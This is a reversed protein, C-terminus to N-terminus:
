SMATQSTRSRRLVKAMGGIEFLFRGDVLFDGQAPYSVEHRASVQNLFFTERETGVNAASHLTRMLNTNDDM